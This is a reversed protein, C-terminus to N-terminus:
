PHTARLLLGAALVLMTTGVVAELVKWAAPRAFVPALMRGGFGLACFWALSALAAGLVFVPRAAVPEAAGISGVLLVTDLYVHPNLLTFGAAQGLASALPLAQNGRAAVLAEPAMARRFAGIGYWALFGAGGLSLALRLQPAQGLLAGLGAVGAMILLADISACFLVIPGVHERRLAQRLVFMNQAGIAIILAASVTFGHIFSTAHLM